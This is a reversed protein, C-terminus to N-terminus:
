GPMLESALEDALATIRPTPQGACTPTSNTDLLIPEDQHLVFDFKGYDFGLRQRAERIPAPLDTIYESAILNERKVVPSRSVHLSMKERRGLFTWTRLCYLGDRREPLFKEVVLEPDWWVHWPVERPSAYIPYSRNRRINRATTPLVRDTVRFWLRPLLAGVRRRRSADPMDFCNANTKVIVAAGYSSDRTVIQGSISRKSIDRVGGNIVRPYCFALADYGAPRRTADVHVFAVEGDVVRTPDDLVLVEIGAHRWRDCLLALIYRDSLRDGPGLYVVVRRITM